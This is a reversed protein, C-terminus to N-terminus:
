VSQQRWRCAGVASSPGRHGPHNPWEM